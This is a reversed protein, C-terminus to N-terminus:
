ISRADGSVHIPHGIEPAPFEKSIVQMWASLTCHFRGVEMNSCGTRKLQGGGGAFRHGKFEIETMSVKWRMADFQRFQKAEEDGIKANGRASGVPLGDQIPDLLGRGSRAIIGADLM